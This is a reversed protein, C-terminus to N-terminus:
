RAANFLQPAPAPPSGALQVRRAVVANHAAQVWPPALKLQQRRAVIGLEGGHVAGGVAAHQQQAVVVAIELDEVGPLRPRRGLADVQVVALEVGQM